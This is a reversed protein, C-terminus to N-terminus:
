YGKAFSLEHQMPRGECWCRYNERFIEWIDEPHSIAASHQTILLNPTTWFPHSEALPEQNFVDLVAARLRGEQLASILSQEDILSGRGANILVCHKPLWSLFDKEILGATESTHPLICLLYDLESAFAQLETPLFYRSIADCDRSNRTVGSVTMGLAHAAVAVAKGINGVGLIGLNKGRLSHHSPEQWRRLAQRQRYGEIDRAFYLMYALAYERMQEGFIDKVGTLRYDKRSGALLPANGAWTSQLWQLQPFCDLSPTALDPDAILLDANQPTFIADSQCLVIELDPLSAKEILAKYIDADRSLIALRHLDSM